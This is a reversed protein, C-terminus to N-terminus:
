LAYILEFKWKIRLVVKCVFSKSNVTGSRYIYYPLHGLELALNGSALILCSTSTEPFWSATTWIRQFCNQFTKYGQPIFRSDYIRALLNCYTVNRGSKLHSIQFWRWPNISGLEKRKDRDELDIVFATRPWLLFYQFYWLLKMNQAIQVFSPLLSYLLWGVLLQAHFLM